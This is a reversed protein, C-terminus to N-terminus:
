DYLAMLAEGLDLEEACHTGGKVMDMAQAMRLRTEPKELLAMGAKYDTEFDRLIRANDGLAGKTTQVAALNFKGIRTALVDVYEEMETNTEFVKNLLGTKEATVADIDKGTFLYEAAKGRGMHEAMRRAAGGGAFLGVSIEPAGIITTPAVAFHLDTACLFDNGGGRTRGNLMTITCLPLTRIRYILGFFYGLTPVDPHM